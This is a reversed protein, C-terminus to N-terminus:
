KRAEQFIQASKRLVDCLTVVTKDTLWIVYQAYCCKACSEKCDKDIWNQVLERTNTAHLDPKMTKEERKRLVDCLTVVTKDTLWIVYQAYCCKACSEKCDKDIWNQVLERTNTAHLDPKM